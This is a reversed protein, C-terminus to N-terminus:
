KSMWEEMEAQNLEIHGFRRLKVTDNELFYFVPFEGGTIRLFADDTIHIYPVAYSMSQKFFIEKNVLNGAMIFSIPLTSNNSRIAQAKAAAMRCHTCAYSLFGIIHKGKKLLSVQKVNSSDAISGIDLHFNLAEKDRVNVTTESINNIVFPAALCSLTVLCITSLPVEFGNQTKSVFLVVGIGIMVVNKIIAELPSMILFTGFCGCNESNGQFIYSWLLYGTFVLLLSIAMYLTFKIRTGLILLIGITLELGIFLRAIYPALFWNLIHNKVLLVEFYEIPFLKTLGSFIFVLGLLIRLILQVLKGRDMQLFNIAFFFDGSM